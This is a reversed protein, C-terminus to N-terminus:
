SFMGRCVPKFCNFINWDISLLELQLKEEAAEAELYKDEHYTYKWINVAIDWM